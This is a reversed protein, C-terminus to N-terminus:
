GAPGPGGRKRRLSRLSEWGARGAAGAGHAARHHRHRGDPPTAPRQPPVLQAPPQGPPLGSRRAPPLAPPQAPPQVAPEASPRIAPEASPPLAPAASPPLAPRAPLCVRNRGSEKAQYLAIDATALLGRIDDGHPGLVAVGISVTVRVEGGAVAVAMASVQSRLREAAARAQAPGAGPLLVVFEEGGFRGVLDCGRAQQRLVGALGALVQDGALHGHTDNIRKFHDADILLLALPQGTRVARGTEADAERQWASANLLGTKGDTRAATRLQQHLLSRQLLIVPPLAVFLLVPSLACAITVLVGVCVGTVDLILSEPDRLVRRPAAAPASVRAAMALLAANLVCFLAGCLVAVGATLPRTFWADQGPHSVWQTVDRVADPRPGFRAFAVSAAAGSLGLAAVGFAQRYRPGANPRVRSELLLGLPIPALLAYVPPLLLVVPLWWVALLDGSADAPIGLRRTAEICAAGCALLAAFLVADAARLPTGILGWALLALYYALVATVCAVAPAPQGLLARPVFRRAAQPGNPREGPIAVHQVAM